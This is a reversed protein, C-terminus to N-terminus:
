GVFFKDNDKAFEDDSCGGYLPNADAYTKAFKAQAKSFVAGTISILQMGKYLTLEM